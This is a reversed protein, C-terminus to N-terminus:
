IAKTTSQGNLWIDFSEKKVRTLRFTRDCTICFPFWHVYGWWVEILGQLVDRWKGCLNRAVETVDSSCVSVCFCTYHQARFHHVAKSLDQVRAFNWGALREKLKCFWTPITPYICGWTQFSHFHWIFTTRAALGNEWACGIVSHLMVECSQFSM